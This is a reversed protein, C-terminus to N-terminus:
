LRVRSSDGLVYRRAPPLGGDKEIVVDRGILSGAIRGGDSIKTGEMVISDEIGTNKITVGDGISTYPGITSRSIRCGEGIIVPGDIVSDDGVVTNRGISV